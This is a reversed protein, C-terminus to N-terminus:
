KVGGILALNGKAIQKKEWCRKCLTHHPNISPLKEGCCKCDSRIKYDIHDKRRKYKRRQGRM